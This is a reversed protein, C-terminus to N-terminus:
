ATATRNPQSPILYHRGSNDDVYARHEVAFEVDFNIATGTPVLAPENEWVMRDSNDLHAPRLDVRGRTPPNVGAVWYFYNISVATVHQAAAVMIRLLSGTAESGKKKDRSVVQADIVEIEAVTFRFLYNRGFYSDYYVRGSDGSNLFWLEVFQADLPIKIDCKMLTGEGPEDTTKQGTLILGTRSWLNVSTVAGNSVFRAFMTIWWGPQNGRMSREGDLREADYYVFLRAGPRLVGRVYHRFDSRFVITPPATQEIRLNTKLKLFPSTSM